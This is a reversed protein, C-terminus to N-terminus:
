HRMDLSFIIGLRDKLKLKIRAIGNSAKKVYDSSSVSNRKKKKM